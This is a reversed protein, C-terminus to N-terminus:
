DDHEENSDDDHRGGGDDGPDGDLDSASDCTDMGQQTPCPRQVQLEQSKRIASMTGPM